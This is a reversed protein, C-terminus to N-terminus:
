PDAQSPSTWALTPSINPRERICVLQNYKSEPVAFTSNNRSLITAIFRCREMM